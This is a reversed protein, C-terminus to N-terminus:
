PLALSAVSTGASGPAGRNGDVGTSLIGGTPHKGASGAAGGAGPPGLMVSQNTVADSTITSARHLVGVSIGGTGGAGGSGGAGNGGAAGAATAASGAAPPSDGGGGAAQGDQGAGGAGGTGGAGTTLSCQELVVTSAVSALAISAGGGGGGKGGAGGCGGAGGGGGGLTTTPASCAGYLPDTAGAGGQGPNGAAGDGGPSAWWGTQSLEGYVQAPAATGGDGAIGDAGPDNTVATAGNPLAAGLPQGDRGPIMAPPPSATGATGLSMCGLGGDGGASVGYQLCANIAGQGGSVSTLGTGGSGVTYVQGGGRPAPGTFNPNAIGDAGAAGDAGAGATLAVRLLRVSSSLAFVAISSGGPSTASPTAFAMDEITVPGVSPGGGEGADQGGDVGGEPGADGGRAAVAGVWIAYTSSPATVQASGGVYNWVRGAPGVACSLGGYLSVAATITVQEGYLGNCVYVRTKSGLNVLAQGITAYPRSMSGDATASASGADGGEVPAPSAVFVGYADDLVCPQDKPDSAPDCVLHDPATSTEEPAAERAADAGESRIDPLTDLSGAETNATADSVLSADAAPCTELDKCSGGGTCGCSFAAIALSAMGLAVRGLAAPASLSEGFRRGIPRMGWVHTGRMQGLVGDATQQSPVSARV